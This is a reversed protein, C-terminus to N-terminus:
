ELAASSFVVQFPVCYIVISQFKSLEVESPIDYNQNGVNGKLLGLDVYDEGISGFTDEPVDQSLIVHLEPGNTSRFDEFRLVHNGDPLEYITATGEAGHVADIQIFSGTVLVVPSEPM